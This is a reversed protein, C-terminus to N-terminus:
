ERTVAAKSPPSADALPKQQAAFQDLAMRIESGVYMMPQAPEYGDSIERETVLPKAIDFAETFSGANQLADQFYAKGFFTLDADNSCGHSQKDPASATIVLTDANKLPEVFGGSYCASVVVIRRKIGSEDLIKRLTQPDLDDLRMSGFDLSLRHEQSGHSTLYLFLIDKDTDMVKGIQALSRRLSTVSAIPVDLVTQPNNILVISRGSTGFRTEFIDSVYKVEKMFVDQASYGAVGVFYLGIKDAPSDNLAALANDLLRPQGYFAREEILADHRYQERATLTEDYPEAWLTRYTASQFAAMWVLFVGPLLVYGVRRGPFGLLRVATTMTALGLWTPALYLSLVYYNIQLSRLLPRASESKLCWLLLESCLGVAIAIAGIVVALMLTSDPRGALHSLAWATVLIVPVMFLLNPLGYYSFEGRPGAIYFDGAFQLGVALAILMVLTAFSAGIREPSIRLFFAGRVGQALTQLPPHSRISTPMYNGPQLDQNAANIAPL